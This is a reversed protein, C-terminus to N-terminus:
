FFEDLRSVPELEWGCANMMDTLPKKFAKEFHMDKNIYKNLGFEKPLTEKFGIVDFGYPNQNLYLFKLKDGDRIPQLVNELHFKKLLFNHNIAAKSQVPAGKIPKDHYSYKEVDSVSRPFAIEEDKKSIFEAYVEKAYKRVAEEGEEIMLKTAHQLNDRCVKPTSSQVQSLGMVKLKPHVYRFGENDNVLLAYRKKAVWFGCYGTKKAGACITERKMKLCNQFVNFAKAMTAICPEISKKEIGKCLIDYFDTRENEDLTKNNDEILKKYVPYINLYGSDTDGAIVMTEDDTTNDQALMKIFKSANRIVTRIFCQGTLTTAQALRKDYLSFYPSGTAGYYSNLLIKKVLQSTSYVVKLHKANNYEELLEKDTMESIPKENM